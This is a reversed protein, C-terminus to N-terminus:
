THGRAEVARGRVREIGNFPNEPFGYEGPTAYRSEIGNFPNECVAVM